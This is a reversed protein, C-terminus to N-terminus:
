ARSASKAAVFLPSPVDRHPENPERLNVQGATENAAGNLGMKRPNLQRAVWYSQHEPESM